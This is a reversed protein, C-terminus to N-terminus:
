SSFYDGDLVSLNDEDLMIEIIFEEWKEEFLKLFIENNGRKKYRELYKEKDEIKPLVVIYNAGKKKLENRLEKHCSVLPLYGNDQMHIAVNSYLDWNKNFPTSELDVAGKTRKAYYSKGIGAFGCVIIHKNTKENEM